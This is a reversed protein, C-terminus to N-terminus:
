AVARPPERQFFLAIPPNVVSPARAHRATPRRTSAKSRAGIAVALALGPLTLRLRQPDLLGLRALDALAVGVEGSSLGSRRELGPRTLPGQGSSASFVLKLIRQAPPSIHM